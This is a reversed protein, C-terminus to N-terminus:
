RRERVRVTATIQGTVTNSILAVSCRTGDPYQKKKQIWDTVAEAIEEAELHMVNETDM